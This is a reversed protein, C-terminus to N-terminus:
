IYGEKEFILYYSTFGGEDAFEVKFIGNKSYTVGIYIYILLSYIM